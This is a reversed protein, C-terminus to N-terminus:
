SHLVKLKATIDSPTDSFTASTRPMSLSSCSTPIDLSTLIAHSQLLIHVTIHISTQLNPILHYDVTGLLLPDLFGMSEIMCGSGVLFLQGDIHPNLMNNSITVSVCESVGGGWVCVCM